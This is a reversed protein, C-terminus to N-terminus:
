GDTRYRVDAGAGPRGCDPGAVLVVTRDGTDVRADTEVWAVLAPEGEFRAFDVVDVRAPAPAFAAEIEALCPPLSLLLSRLSPDVPSDLTKLRGSLSDVDSETSIRPEMAPPEVQKASPQAGPPAAPLTSPRYDTGTALLLPRSMPVARDEATAMDGSDDGGGVLGLNGIGVTAIAAVAAATTVLGVAWGAVRRRATRAPPRRHDSSRTPPRAGGDRGRPSPVGGAGGSAPTGAGARGATGAGATAAAAAPEAADDGRRLAAVIRDTVDRPMTPAPLAALDAAVADLGRALAAAARAWTPDTAVLHAVRDDEPTGALAGGLHDALLDWDVAGGRLAGREPPPGTQNM